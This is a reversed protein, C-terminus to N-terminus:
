KDELVKIRAELEQIVKVAHALIGVTNVAKGKSGIDNKELDPDEARWDEGIVDNPLHKEVEQAIFGSTERDDAKWKFTVPNLAKIATLSDSANLTTIDKKLAVDSTDNLDGSVLGSSNIDLANIAASEGFKGRIYVRFYGSLAGSSYGSAGSTFISAAPWQYDGGGTVHRTYFHIQPSYAGTTMSYLNINPTYGAVTDSKFDFDRGNDHIRMRENDGGAYFVLDAANLATGYGAIGAGSTSTGSTFLLKAGDGVSTNENALRLASIAGTGNAEVHLKHSAEINGIGVNGTSGAIIMRDVLTSGGNEKNRFRINSYVGNNGTFNNDIWLQADGTTYEFSGYLSGHEIYKAQFGIRQSDATSEAAIIANAARVSLDKSPQAVNIGVRKNVGDMSMVASGTTNEPVGDAANSVIFSLAGFATGGNGISWNRSSTNSNVDTFYIKSMGAWTTTDGSIDLKAAPSATGIGVNAGDANIVTTGSQNMQLHYNSATGLRYSEDALVLASGMVTSTGPKMIFAGSRSSASKLNLNADSGGNITVEGNFTSDENTDIVLVDSGAGNYNIRFTDDTHTYVYWQQAQDDTTRLRLAKNAVIEGGFIAAGADSMDLTLANFYTGNDSGRFIIDKDDVISIIQFDNSSNKLQAFETGGDKLQILGGDADLVIQSAVDITMSGSTNSINGTVQIGTSTTELKKSGDYYFEGGAGSTFFAYLTDDTEALRLNSGQLILNGQANDKVYSHSGDHYIQLDNGDGAVLKVNDPLEFQGFMRLPHSFIFKDDSARWYLSANTSADVADQITIGAGDASGSTDNSAHYNLTINKDVSNLNDATTTSGSVALNGALSVNGSSDITIATSTGSDSISPTSSLHAPIKTLAM